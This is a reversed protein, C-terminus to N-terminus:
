FRYIDGDLHHAVSNIILFLNKEEQGDRVCQVRAELQRKKDLSDNLVGQMSNSEDPFVFFNAKGSEDEVVGSYGEGVQHLETVVGKILYFADIRHDLMLANKVSCPKYADKHM